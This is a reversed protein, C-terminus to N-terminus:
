NVGKILNLQRKINAVRPEFNKKQFTFKNMEVTFSKYKEEQEKVIKIFQNRTNVNYKFVKWFEGTKKINENIRSLLKSFEIKFQTMEEILPTAEKMMISFLDFMRKGDMIEPMIGSYDVTAPIFNTEFDPNLLRHIGEAIVHVEEFVKTAIDQFKEIEGGNTILPEPAKSVKAFRKEVEKDTM